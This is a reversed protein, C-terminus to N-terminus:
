YFENNRRPFDFIKDNKLPMNLESLECDFTSDHVPIHYGVFFSPLIENILPTSFGFFRESM